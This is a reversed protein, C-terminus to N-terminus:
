RQLTRGGNGKGVGRDPTLRLAPGLRPRPSAPLPKLCMFVALAKNSFLEIMKLFLWRWDSLGANLANVGLEGRLRRFRM